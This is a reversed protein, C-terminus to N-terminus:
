LHKHRQRFHQQILFLYFKDTFPHMQHRHLIPFLLGNQPMLIGKEINPGRFGLLVAVHQIQSVSAPEGAAPVLGIVLPFFYICLAAVPQKMLGEAQVALRIDKM